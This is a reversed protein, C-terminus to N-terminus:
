VKGVGTMGYSGGLLMSAAESQMPSLGLRRKRKEEETEDAVQSALTNGLGLDASAMGTMGQMPNSPM